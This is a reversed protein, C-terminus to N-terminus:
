LPTDGAHFVQLRGESTLMDRYASDGGPMPTVDELQVVQRHTSDADAPAGSTPGTVEELLLFDGPALVPLSAQREGPGDAFQYLYATRTGKPLCCELNGWTHLFIRNNAPNVSLDFTTEFVRVQTLAPDSEFSTPPVDSEPIVTPPVTSQSRLPATIRSLVQ